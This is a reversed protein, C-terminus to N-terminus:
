VILNILIHFSVLEKRLITIDKTEAYLNKVGYQLISNYTCYIDAFTHRSDFIFAVLDDPNNAISDDDIFDYNKKTVIREAFFAFVVIALIENM